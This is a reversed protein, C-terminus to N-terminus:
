TTEQRPIKSEPMLVFSNVSGTEEVSSRVLEKLERKIIEENLQGIKESM